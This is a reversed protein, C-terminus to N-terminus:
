IWDLGDKQLSWVMRILFSSFATATWCGQSSPNEPWNRRQQLTRGGNEPLAFHKGQWLKPATRCPFHSSSFRGQGQSLEQIKEEIVAVVKKLRQNLSIQFGQFNSWCCCCGELARHAQESCTRLGKKPWTVADAPCQHWRAQQRCASGSRHPSAMPQVCTKQLARMVHSTENLIARELIRPPAGTSSM